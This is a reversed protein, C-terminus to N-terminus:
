VVSKRDRQEANQAKLEREYAQLQEILDNIDGNMAAPINSRSIKGKYELTGKCHKELGCLYNLFSTKGAGNAGAIASIQGAAIKLM